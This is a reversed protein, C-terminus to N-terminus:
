MAQLNQNPNTKVNSLHYEFSSCTNKFEKCYRNEPTTGSALYINGDFKWHFSGNELIKLPRFDM